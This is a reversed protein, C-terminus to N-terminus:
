KLAVELKEKLGIVAKDALGFGGAKEIKEISAVLYNAVDEDVEVKKLGGKEDNWQWQISDGSKTEVKEAKEWDEKLVAFEKVSDLIKGLLSVSGKFDDLHKLAFLRESINLELKKM